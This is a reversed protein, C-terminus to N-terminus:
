YQRMHAALAQFTQRRGNCQLYDVGDPVGWLVDYTANLANMEFEKYYQTSGDM